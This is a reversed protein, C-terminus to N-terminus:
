VGPASYLAIWEEYLKIGPKSDKYKEGIEQYLWPCPFMAAFAEAVDGNYAANYM